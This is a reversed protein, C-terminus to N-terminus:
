KEIVSDPADRRVQRLFRRATSEDINLEEGIEHFTNGELRLEAIERAIPPQEDTLLHFHERFVAVASPTPDHGAPHLTVQDSDEHILTELKIDRKQQQTQRGALKVKNTAIAVLYNTLDHPTAFDPLHHRENFFSAWVQQTFDHSDYLSRLKHWM